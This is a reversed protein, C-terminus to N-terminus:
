TSRKGKKLMEMTKIIRSLRTEARKAEEIWRVYERQHTYSLKDFLDKADKDKKLEKMLDPPVSVRRPETDPEVIIKVEDGFTKGIQERIGKLVILMHHEGGMRVLTGRYPIGEILAKIKPRKSGFTKEVDFPIEVFGGGGGANQIRGTFSQKEPM